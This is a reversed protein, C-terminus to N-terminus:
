RPNRYYGVAVVYRGTKHLLAHKDEAKSCVPNKWKYGYGTDEAQKMLALIPAGVPKGEPDHVSDFDLGLM